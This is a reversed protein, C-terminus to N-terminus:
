STKTLGPVTLNTDNTILFVNSGETIEEGKTPYQKIVKNGNGIVKVNMKMNELEAKSSATDKNKYSTLSYSALDEESTTVPDTGYYKSVNVVIDKIAKWIVKQNGGEPRKVSAYIIVKPDNNPYIGAFSSIIDSEGTLYGGGNEDAIQATGTKGILDYGDLRYGAGTMGPVNVTNWMLERIKNVTSESAVTDVEERKGEYTVEGTDPDVIKEVLYPKLMVGGNTLSTLAQINQIPTTTIGQGFGANFIETEYKFDVDGTAESPLEIGTKKSFGLKKFYSRLIDASLHRDILNIVGVNSSLAFGKDFTIDGWGARNWDGIETGDTTTYVGSHYTENGNYVGQEMAAMYTFIKMTSGPEYPSSVNMDLYNTIDRKNPDFSPSTSSALIAGTKADAIMITFWEYKYNAEAESLAQEVFFQISSNITLYIDKGDEAEKTIENTGAIKYGRLDKQYTTYGDEGKLTSDYYEEIGMEGTMDTVENGDEDVSTEEKAYGLVYSAFDGKPYYRKLSEIFDIGPLNLKEIEEKTLETLGNGITGFETQYVNEKNLYSLIVDETTGLIPALKSATMEKDVVHKPNDPDTTRSPSLYAILKYSSVNQALAEGDSSYINGREAKVVDTKTTRQRALAQLNTDDIEESLALQTVRVLMLAFLFLSVLIVLKSYKINNRTRKKKKM